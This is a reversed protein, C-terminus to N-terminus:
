FSDAWGGRSETSVVRPYYGSVSLVVEHVSLMDSKKFWLVIQLFSFVSESLVLM